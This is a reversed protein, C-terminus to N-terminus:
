HRMSSYSIFVPEVHTTTIGQTSHAKTVLLPGSCVSLTFLCTPTKAIPKKDSAAPYSAPKSCPFTPQLHTKSHHLILGVAVWVVAKM